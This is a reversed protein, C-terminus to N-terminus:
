ESGLRMELAALRDELAAVWEKLRANERRMYAAEICLAEAYRLSYRDGADSHLRGGDPLEEDSADWADYCFFGYRSADLGAAAFAAKARQAILGGHVRAAAGKREVADRMRYFVWDVGGWADLVDGSISSIDTKLREDSTNIASAAAFVETWRRNAQGLFCANDANPRASPSTVYVSDSASTAGTNYTLTFSSVTQAGSENRYVTLSANHVGADTANMLLGALRNRVALGANDYFFVSGVSSSAPASGKAHAARLVVNSYSTDPPRNVVLPSDFEKQGTSVQNGSLM